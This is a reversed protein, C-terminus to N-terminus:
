DALSGDLEDVWCFFDATASIAGAYATGVAHGINYWTPTAKVGGSVVEVEIASLVYM